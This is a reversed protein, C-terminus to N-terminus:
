KVRKARIRRNANEKGIFFSGLSGRTVKILEGESLKLRSSDTQRWIQDNDLTIILNGYASKKIDIIKAEIQQIMDDTSQKNEYGFKTKAESTIEPKSSKSVNAPVPKNTEVKTEKVLMKAPASTQKDTTRDIKKALEDFCVLRRLSNDIQKCSLMGENLSKAMGYHSFLLTIAALSKVYNM